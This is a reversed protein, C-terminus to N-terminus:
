ADTIRAIDDSWMVLLSTSFLVSKLQMIFKPKAQPTPTKAGPKRTIDTSPHLPLSSLATILAELPEDPEFWAPLVPPIEEPPVPPEVPVVPPPPCGVVPAAPLEIVHVAGMTTVAWGVASRSVLRSVSLATLPKEGPPPQNEYLSMSGLPMSM